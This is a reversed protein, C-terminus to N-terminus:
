PTTSLQEDRRDIAKYGEHILKYYDYKGDKPDKDILEPFSDYLYFFKHDIKLLQRKTYDDYKEWRKRGVMDKKVLLKKDGPNNVLRRYIHLFDFEQQL